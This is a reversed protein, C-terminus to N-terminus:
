ELPILHRLSYGEVECSRAIENRVPRFDFQAGYRKQFLRAQRELVSSVHRAPGVRFTEEKPGLHPALDIGPDDTREWLFESFYVVRAEEEIDLQVRYRLQKVTGKTPRRALVLELSIGGPTEQLEAHLNQACRKLADRIAM